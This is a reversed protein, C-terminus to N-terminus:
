LLALKSNKTNEINEKVIGMMVEQDEMDTDYLLQDVSVGGRMYWSLQYCQHKIQKIENEM